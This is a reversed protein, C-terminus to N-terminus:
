KDMKRELLYTNIQLFSSVLIHISLVDIVRDHNLHLHQMPRLMTNKLDVSPIFSSNLIPPHCFGHLFLNYKYFLFCHWNPTQDILNFRTIQYGLDNHQITLRSKQNSKSKRNELDIRNTELSYVVLIDIFWSNKFYIKGLNQVEGSYVDLFKSIDKIYHCLLDPCSGNIPNM